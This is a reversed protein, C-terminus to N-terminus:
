PVYATLGGTTSASFLYGNAFVPQSFELSPLAFQALVQGNSADVLFLQNTGGTMDATAAAIVGAGDEAPSGEIPGPNLGRQWLPKGTAPNVSRLSGAYSVGAITTKNSAVILRGNGQDWIASALCTPGGQKKAGIKRSWVPGATLDQAALAYFFGNKNCAGVM